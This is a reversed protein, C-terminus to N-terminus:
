LDIVEDSEDLVHLSISKLVNDRVGLLIGSKNVTYITSNKM